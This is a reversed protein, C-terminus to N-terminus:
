RPSDTPAAEPAAEPSQGVTPRMETLLREANARVLPDTTKALVNRVQPELFRGCRQLRAMANKMAFGDRSWRNRIAAEVESEESPTLLELRGVLVRVVADPAPEIALPLLAETQPRPLIWLVRTGPSRFWSRAWTKVMADAEDQFLGEAVLQERVIHTLKGVVDDLHAWGDPHLQTRATAGPALPSTLALRALYTGSKKGERVQLLVGAAVPDKGHNTLSAADEETMARLPLPFHGLGRYFLYRETEVPGARGPATRPATRLWSARVDRAFTWPDDAAAKPADPPATRSASEPYATVDWSLFSRPVAAVDLPRDTRAGEAPGLLDPVPYWQTLLGGVFDVRVRVRREKASHIYLVPTEMKQTVGEAPVELGKWGQARLPCDRIEARSHVFEPLAEEEYALGELGLGDSGQM